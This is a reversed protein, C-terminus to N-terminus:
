GLRSALFQDFAALTVGASKTELHARYAAEGEADTRGVPLEVAPRWHWQSAVGLRSVGLVWTGAESGPMFYLANAWQHHVRNRAFRLARIIPEKQTGLFEDISAAWNLAEFLPLFTEHGTSMNTDVEAFRQM